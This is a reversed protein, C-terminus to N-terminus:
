NKRLSPVALTVLACEFWNIWLDSQRSSWSWACFVRWSLICCDSEWLSRDKQDAPYPYRLSQSRSQSHLTEERNKNEMRKLEAPNKSHHIRPCIFTMFHGGSYIVKFLCLCYQVRIRVLCCGSYLRDWSSKSPKRRVTQNGREDFGVWAIKADQIRPKRMVERRGHQHGKASLFFFLSSRAQM